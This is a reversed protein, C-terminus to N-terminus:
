ARTSKDPMWNLSRCIISIIGHIGALLVRSHCVVTRLSATSANCIFLKNKSLDKRLTLSMSEGLRRALIGGSMGLGPAQGIRAILLLHQTNLKIM